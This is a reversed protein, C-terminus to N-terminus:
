GAGKISEVFNKEFIVQYNDIEGCENAISEMVTEIGFMFSQNGYKADFHGTFMENKILDNYVIRYAEEKNM